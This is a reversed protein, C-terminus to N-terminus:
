IVHSGLAEIFPFSIFINCKLEMDSEMEDMNRFKKQLPNGPIDVIGQNIIANLDSKLITVRSSNNLVIRM